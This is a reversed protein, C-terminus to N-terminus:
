MVHCGNCDVPGAEYEEHCEVCQSHAADSNKSVEIVDIDIGDIDDIDHCDLCAEPVSYESDAPVEQHCADCSSYDPEEFPHPHSDANHCELCTAPVSYASDAPAEQHCVDCSRYDADEYHHHCDECSAGYQGPSFHAKHDFLVKGAVTQYMIRLPQDPPEASSAAYSLIGVILLIGALAYALKLEKKPTM